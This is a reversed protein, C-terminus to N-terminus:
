KFYSMLESFSKEVPIVIEKEYRAILKNKPFRNKTDYQIYNYIWADERIIPNKLLREMDIHKKIIALSRKDGVMSCKTLENRLADIQGEKLYRCVAWYIIFRPEYKM